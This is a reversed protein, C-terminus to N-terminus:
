PYKSLPKEFSIEFFDFDVVEPLKRSPTESDGVLELIWDLDRVNMRRRVKMKEVLGEALSM